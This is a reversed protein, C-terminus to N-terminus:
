MLRASTKFTPLSTSLDCSNWLRGCSNWVISPWIKQFRVTRTKLISTKWIMKKKTFHLGEFFFFFFFFSPWIKQFKVTMTKLISIKWIFNKKKFLTGWFFFFFFFFFVSHYVIQHSNHNFKLVYSAKQIILIEGLDSFYNLNKSFYVNQYLIWSNM